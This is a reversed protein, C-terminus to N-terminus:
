IHILSLTTVGSYAPTCTFHLGVLQVRDGGLLNHNTSTELEIIGTVKDYAATSISVPDRFTNVGVIDILEGSANIDVKTKAGYLPAYGLGPTSGLSVILGGRPLQNQNIDFESQIYSGNESTIGSFVVSSIGSASSTNDFEYNNGLNNITTPTQFVGNLFLIGNGIDIGTTNAGGVKMTFTQGVGTFQNSIDDFVM